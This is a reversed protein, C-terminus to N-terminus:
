AEAPSGKPVSRVQLFERGTRWTGLLAAVLLVFGTAWSVVVVRPLLARVGYFLLVWLGGVALWPSARSMDVVVLAGSRM